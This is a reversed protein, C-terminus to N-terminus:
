QVWFELKVKFGNPLTHECSDPRIITSKKVDEVYSGQSLKTVFATKGSRKAGVVLVKLEPRSM